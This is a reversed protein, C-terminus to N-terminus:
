RRLRRRGRPRAEAPRPGQRRLGQRRGKGLVLTDPGKGGYGVDAGKGLRLSDRGRGGYGLDSGGRSEILDPGALGRFLEHKGTGALFDAFRSGVVLLRLLKTRPDRVLPLPSVVLTAASAALVSGVPNTATEALRITAGVDDSTVLHEAAFSGPINACNAGAADCRQWNYTYSLPADGAWSGAAGTLAEDVVASGALTPLLLNTPATGVTIAVTAPTGVLGRSDTARYTFTDIGVFGPDPTYTVTASTDSGTSIASLSGNTPTDWIALELARDGTADEYCFFDYLSRDTTCTEIRSKIEAGILTGTLPAVVPQSALTSLALPTAKGGPIVREVDAINNTVDHEEIIRPPAAPNIDARPPNVESRLTYTGPDLGTVDIWQDALQANYYDGIGPSIGMRVFPAAPSGSMCWPQLGSYYNFESLVDYTDLMCFGIKVGRISGAGPVLLEYTAAADYHWHHHGTVASYIMYGGKATLDHNVSGGPESFASQRGGPEGGPWVAQFLTQEPKACQTCFLDFAGGINGLVADFRYLARGPSEVTDIFMAPVNFGSLESVVPMIPILDPKDPLTPPLPLRLSGLGSPTTTVPSPVGLTPVPNVRVDAPRHHAQASASLMLAAVLAALTAAVLSAGSARREGLSLWRLGWRLGMAAASSSAM